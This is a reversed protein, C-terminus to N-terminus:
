REVFIVNPLENLEDALHDSQEEPLFSTDYQNANESSFPWLGWGTKELLIGGLREFADRGGANKYDVSYFLTFYLADKSDIDQSLLDEGIARLHCHYFDEELGMIIHGNYLIGALSIEDTGGFYENAIDELTIQRYSFDLSNSPTSVIKRNM